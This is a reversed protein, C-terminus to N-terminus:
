KRLGLKGILEKYAVEDKKSLYKQFSKRKNILKELGRYSHKDKYNGAATKHKALHDALDKIRETLLAIQVAASGTDHENKGYTKIIEKKQEVTLM